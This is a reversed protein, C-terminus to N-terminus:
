RIGMVSNYTRQMANELSVRALNFHEEKTVYEAAIYEIGDPMTGQLTLLWAPGIELFLDCETEWMFTKALTAYTQPTPLFVLALFATMSQIFTRRKM